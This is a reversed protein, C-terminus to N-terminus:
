KSTSEWAKDLLMQKEELKKKANNLRDEKAPLSKKLANLQLTQQEIRQEYGKISASLAEYDQSAKDFEKQAARVQYQEDNLDKASVSVNNLLLLAMSVMVKFAVHRKRILHKQNM